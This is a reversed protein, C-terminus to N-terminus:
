DSSGSGPLLAFAILTEWEEGPPVDMGSLITEELGEADPEVRSREVTQPTAGRFCLPCPAADEDTFRLPPGYTRCSVPRSRYLECRGDEPDLAPCPLTRHGDFFRDLADTGGTLEGSASDGPYGAALAAVARRARDVIRGARGPDNERLDRLGRRLRRVDLITVPFPGVCCESCGPRCALWEGARHRAEQFDDDLVRLLSADARDLDHDTAV